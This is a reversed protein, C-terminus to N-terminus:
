NVNAILADGQAHLNDGLLLGGDIDTPRDGGDGFKDGRRVAAIRLHAVGCHAGYKQGIHSHGLFDRLEPPGVTARSVSSDNEVESSVGAAGCSAGATTAGVLPQRRWPMPLAVRAVPGGKISPRWWRLESLM